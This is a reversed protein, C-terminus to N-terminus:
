RNEREGELYTLHGSLESARNRFARQVRKDFRLRGACPFCVYAGRGSLTQKPDPVVIGTEPALALRLLLGKHGKARCVICTRVPLRSGTAL